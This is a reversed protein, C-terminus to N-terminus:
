ASAGHVIRSQRRGLWLLTVALAWFWVYVVSLVIYRTWFGPVIGSVVVRGAWMGVLLAVASVTGLGYRGTNFLRAIVRILWGACVVLMSYEAVFTSANDTTIDDFAAFVLILVVITIMGDRFLTGSPAPRGVASEM